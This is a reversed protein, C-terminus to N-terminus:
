KLRWKNQAKLKKIYQEGKIGEQTFGNTKWWAVVSTIVTLGVTVLSEVQADSIPLVSHGTASLVQNVLALILCVTRAITGASVKSDM